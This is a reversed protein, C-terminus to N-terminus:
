PQMKNMWRVRVSEPVALHMKARYGRRARRSGAFISSTRKWWGDELLWPVLMLSSAKASCPM